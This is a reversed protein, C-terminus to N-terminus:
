ATKAQDKVHDVIAKFAEKESVALEALMKRDVRMDAHFCGNIFRSYSIGNARCAANIRTIWLSRFTRKKLRRDRYANIGAKMVANKAQRFTKSRLGRYGKAAKIVKKHRRHAQVGRKVRTM